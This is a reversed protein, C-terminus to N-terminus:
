VLLSSNISFQIPFTIQIVTIMFHTKTELIHCCYLFSLLSLFFFFLVFFGWFCFFLFSFDVQFFGFWLLKWESFLCLACAM